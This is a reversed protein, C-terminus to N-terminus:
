TYHYSVKLLYTTLMRNCKWKRERRRVESDHFRPQMHGVAADPISIPLPSKLIRSPHLDAMKNVEEPM